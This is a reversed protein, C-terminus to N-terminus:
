YKNHSWATTFEFPVVISAANSTGGWQPTDLPEPNRVRLEIRGARSLLNQDLSAEIKTADLVKTPIAIGDAFVQSRKVFHFGTLTVTQAPSGRIITHLSLAEIGPSPSAGPDDVAPRPAVEGAFNVGGRFFRNATVRKLSGVWDPTDIVPPSDNSPNEFMGGAYHPHYSRDVVKGNQIVTDIKRLNLITQTPDADVIDLDGFKGVEVTGIDKIRFADATWKTGAQLAQMPTLGVDEEYASMEQQVGIGPGSQSIDSAAVIHGGGDVFAKLFKMQNAFGKRRRDIQDPTLWNEVSDVNQWLDVIAGEDYYARINPDDFVERDEQQVRKWNKHLGRATAMLDPELATHHDVLHKVMPGIKADDMDAYAYPPLAIYTKWKAPDKALEVGVNGTHILVDAGAQAADYARTGPGVARFVAAKGAKHAEDAYAAFVEPPGDGDAAAIFDASMAVLDRALQRAEEPTHAIKGYDGPKFNDPKKGDVGGGRLNIVAEYLRPGPFIGHNIADREAIGIDNGKGGSVMASTVGWHLMGEGYEWNWNAKADILGPTVWKGAANIVQAGAPIQVQGARGVATIRGGQMVIVSNPVPAGGNGDILTGGQVVLVGQGQADVQAPWGLALLALGSVLTGGFIWNRM